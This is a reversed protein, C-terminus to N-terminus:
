HAQGSPVTVAPAQASSVAIQLETSCNSEGGTQPMATVAYYYTQGGIVTDDEYALTVINSAFPTKGIGCSGPTASRYVNFTCTTCTDAWTLQVMHGGTNNAWAALALILCCVITRVITRM